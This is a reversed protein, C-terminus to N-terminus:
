AMAKGVAPSTPHVEKKTQKIVLAPNLYKPCVISCNMVNHCMNLKPSNELISLRKDLDSDLPESIWRYSQLLVSPGLFVERNWWYSPCSSTCSACLVCQYLGELRNRNTPNVKNKLYWRNLSWDGLGGKFSTLCVVAKSCDRTTYLRDAHENKTADKVIKRYNYLSSSFRSARKAVVSM